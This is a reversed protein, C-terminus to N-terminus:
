SIIIDFNSIIESTFKIVNIVIFIFLIVKKLAKLLM